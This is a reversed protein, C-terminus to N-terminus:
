IWIRLLLEDSNMKGEEEHKITIKRLAGVIKSFSAAKRELSKRRTGETEKSRVIRFSRNKQM